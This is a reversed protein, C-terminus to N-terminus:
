GRAYSVPFFGASGSIELVQQRFSSPDFGREPALRKPLAYVAFMYTESSGPTPCISYGNEGFSNRGVIAGRPLQSTGIGTLAPDVGAVAWDFFLKGGVPQVNMAFIALEATGQPVGQWSLAPWSNEGECTYVTSLPAMGSSGAPLSPSSLTMNAVTAQAIEKATPAQEPPGKPHVIEAAQEGGGGGGGGSGPPRKGEAKSAANETGLRSGSRSGEPLQQAATTSETPASVTPDDSGGGCGVLGVIAVVALTLFMGARADGLRRRRMAEVYTSFGLRPKNM